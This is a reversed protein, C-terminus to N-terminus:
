RSSFSRMIRNEREVHIRLLRVLELGRQFLSTQFVKSDARTKSRKFSRKWASLTRQIVRHEAILFLLTGSLRPAHRRLHPFVAMEEAKFHSSMHSEFNRVFRQLRDLVRAPYRDNVRYGKLISELERLEAMFAEHDTELMRWPAWLLAVTEDPVLSHVFVPNM